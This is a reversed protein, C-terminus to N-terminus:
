VTKDSPLIGGLDGTTAEKERLSEKRSSIKGKSLSIRRRMPFITKRPATLPRLFNQSTQLTPTFFYVPYMALGKGSRQAKHGPWGAPSSSPAEIQLGDEEVM